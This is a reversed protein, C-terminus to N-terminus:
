AASRQKQEDRRKVYLHGARAALCLIENQNFGFEVAIASWMKLGDHAPDAEIIEVRRRIIMESNEKLWRKRERWRPRPPPSSLKL